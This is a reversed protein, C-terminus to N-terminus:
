YNDRHKYRTLKCKDEADLIQDEFDPDIEFRNLVSTMGIGIEAMATKRPVGRKVARLLDDQWKHRSLM